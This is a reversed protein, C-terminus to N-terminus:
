HEGSRNESKNLIYNELKGEGSGINADKQGNLYASVADNRTLSIVFGGASSFLKKEGKGLFGSFLTDHGSIIVAGINEYAILSLNQADSGPTYFPPREWPRNWKIGELIKTEGAPIVKTIDTRSPIRERTKVAFYIIAIIVAAAIIVILFKYSRKKKKEEPFEIRREAQEDDGTEGEILKYLEKLNLELAEACTKVFPKLYVQGPM